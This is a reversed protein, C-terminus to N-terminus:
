KLAGHDPRVSRASRSLLTTSTLWSPLFPNHRVSFHVALRTSGDRGRMRRHYGATNAAVLTNGDCTFVREVVRQRDLEATLVRRSGKNTTVSELYIQWLREATLRHSTPVFVFPGADVDVDELYLWAKHTNFFTDTHLDSERDHAQGRHTVREVACLSSWLNLPRREAGSLVARITDHEVLADLSPYRGRRVKRLDVQEVLAGGHDHISSAHRERELAILAEERVRALMTSDLLRPIEVCGDDVLREVEPRVSAADHPRARYVIRAAVARVAQLGALNLVRNDVTKAATLARAPEILSRLARRM